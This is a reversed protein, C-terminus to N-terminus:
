GNPPGGNSRAPRVEEAAGACEKCGLAFCRTDVSSTEMGNM